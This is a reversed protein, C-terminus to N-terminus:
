FECTDLEVSRVAEKIRRTRRKEGLKKFSVAPLNCVHTYTAMFIDLYWDIRFNCCYFLFVVAFDFINLNSWHLIVLFVQGVKKLHDLFFRQHPKIKWGRQFTFTVLGRYKRTKPGIDLTLFCLCRTRGLFYQCQKCKRTFIYKGSVVAGPM